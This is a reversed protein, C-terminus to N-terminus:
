AANEKIYENLKRTEKWRSPSDLVVTIYTKGKYEFNNVLCEGAGDTTGTKGGLEGEEDKLLLENSSKVEIEDGEGDVTTFSYKKTKIIDRFTQYKMAEADILALDYASSYHNYADLGHPNSFHTNYCGLKEAEANMLDSFSEVNGSVHDAIAVAADNASDLLMAYMMNMMSYQQGKKMGLEAYDVKVADETITVTDNMNTKQLAIIATMLKTTSANPLQKHENQKYLIQKTEPDYAIAAASELDLESMNYATTTITRSTYSTGLLTGKIYIRWKEIAKSSWDSPYELTVSADHRDAAKKTDVTVWEKSSEDYHQLYIKRGDANQIKIKDSLPSGAQQNPKYDVATVKTKFPKFIYGRGPLLEQRSLITLIPIVVVILLFLLLRWVRIVYRGSRSRLVNNKMATKM